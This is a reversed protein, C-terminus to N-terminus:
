AAQNQHVGQVVHIFSSTLVQVADYGHEQKTFKQTIYNPSEFGIVTCGVATGDELFITTMGAKTGLMGIGARFARAEIVLTKRPAVRPVTARSVIRTGAFASVSSLAMKAAQEAQFEVPLRVNYTCPFTVEHQKGALRCPSDIALDRAHVFTAV